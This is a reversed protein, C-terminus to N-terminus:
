KDAVVQLVKVEPYDYYFAQSVLSIDNGAVPIHNTALNIVMYRPGDKTVTFYGSKGYYYAGVVLDPNQSAQELNSNFEAAERASIKAIVPKRREIRGERDSICAALQAIQKKYQSIMNADKANKIELEWSTVSM